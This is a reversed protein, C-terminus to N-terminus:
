CYLSLILFFKFCYKLCWWGFSTTSIGEVKLHCTTSNLCRFRVAFMRWSCTGLCGHKHWATPLLPPGCSSICVQYAPLSGFCWRTRLLNDSSFSFGTSLEVDMQCRQFLFFYSLAGPRSFMQYKLVALFSSELGRFSNIKCVKHNVNWHYKQGRWRQNIVWTHFM